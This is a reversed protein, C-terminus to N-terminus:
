ALAVAFPELETRADEAAESGIQRTSRVYAALLCRDAFLNILRPIGRSFECAERVASQGFQVEYPAGAVNLRYAIYDGVEEEALARLHCRVTIRQRFQALSPHNLLVELEPQGVLLIQLLKEKATELNSLLRIAELTKPKLGQAEDIMLVCTRGRANEEILFRNLGDFCRKRTKARLAIGFDEVIAELLQGHSLMPNLILSSTVSDRTRELLARTLTTKGSGIEGTLILFGKRYEIGYILSSLAEGHQHSLFLFRPDPTINFPYESFGFFDKYM